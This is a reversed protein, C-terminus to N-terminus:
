WCGRSSCCRAASRSCRSSAAPSSRAAMPRASPWARSCRTSASSRAGTAAGGPAADRRRQALALRAPGAARLRHRAARSRTPRCASSRSAASGCAAAAGAGARHDRQLADDQGHRQPRRDGLVGRELTFASARCRTPAATTSTSATSSWCRGPPAKTTADRDRGLWAMLAQRGMYIAQVEADNEIEDPTGHKLVRGNHMVTVREVVRLAIDLDHEILVFGM